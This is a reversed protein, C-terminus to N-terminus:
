WVRERREEKKQKKEKRGKRRRAQWEEKISERENIYECGLV